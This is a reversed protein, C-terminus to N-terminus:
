MLRFNRDNLYLVSVPQGVEPLENEALDDRTQAITGKFIRGTKPSTFQYWVTVVFEKGYPGPRVEGESKVIEGNILSGQRKLAFRRWFWWGAGLLIANLSLMVSLVLILSGTVMSETDVLAGIVLLNLAIMPLIFLVIVAFVVGILHDPPRTDKGEIFSSNFPDIVFANNIKM